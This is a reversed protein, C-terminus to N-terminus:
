IPFNWIQCVLSFIMNLNINKLAHNGIGKSRLIRELISAEPGVQSSSFMCWYSSCAGNRKIFRMTSNKVYELASHQQLRMEPKYLKFKVYMAENKFVVTFHMICLQTQKILFSTWFLIGTSFSHTINSFKPPFPSLRDSSPCLSFFLLTVLGFALTILIRMVEDSFLKWPM